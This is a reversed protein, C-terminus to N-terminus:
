LVIFMLRLIRNEGRAHFTSFTYYISDFGIQDRKAYYSHRSVSPRSLTTDQCMTLSIPEYSTTSPCTCSEVKSISGQSQSCNNAIAVANPKRM